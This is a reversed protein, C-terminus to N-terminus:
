NQIPAPRGCEPCRDPSSRLDYGCHVCCNGGLRRRRVAKARLLLTAPFALLLVLLWFPLAVTTRRQTITVHKFDPWSSVSSEYGLGIFNKEPRCWQYDVADAALIIDRSQPSTLDILKSTVGWPHHSYSWGEQPSDISVPNWTPPHSRFDTTTELDIGQLHTALVYNTDAHTLLTLQDSIKLSRFWLVLCLVCLLTSLLVLSRRIM